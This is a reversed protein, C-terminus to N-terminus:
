LKVKRRDRKPRSDIAQPGRRWVHPGAKKAAEVAQEMRSKGAATTPFRNVMGAKLKRPVLLWCGDCFVLGLPICEDLCALCRTRKTPDLRSVVGGRRPGAPQHRATPNYTPSM